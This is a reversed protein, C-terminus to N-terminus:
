LFDVCKITDLTKFHSCDIQFHICMYHTRYRGTDRYGVSAHRQGIKDNSTVRYTMAYDSQKIIQILYM